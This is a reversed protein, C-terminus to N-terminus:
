AKSGGSGEKSQNQLTTLIEKILRIMSKIAGQKRYSRRYNDNAMLHSSTKILVVLFSKYKIPSPKNLLSVFLSLVASALSSTLM